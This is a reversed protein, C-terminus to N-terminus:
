VNNSTNEAINTLTIKYEFNADVQVLTSSVEKELVLDVENIPDEIIVPETEDMDDPFNDGEIYVSNRVSGEEATIMVKLELSISEGSTLSTINWTIVDGNVTGMPNMEVLITGQPLTDTVVIGTATFDGLNDIKITYTIMDGPFASSVNQTKSVN